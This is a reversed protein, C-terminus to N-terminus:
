SANELLFLVCLFNPHFFLLCLESRSGLVEKKGALLRFVTSRIQVIQVM